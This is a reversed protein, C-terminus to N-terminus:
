SNFRLGKLNTREEDSHILELFGKKHIVGRRNRETRSFRELWYARDGAYLAFSRHDPPFVRVIYADMGFSLSAPYKFQVLESDLRNVVDFNIFTVIDIDRPNADTTTFSGDIWQIFPLDDLLDYMSTMYDLYKNFLTQRQSVPMNWVFITALELITAPINYDPILLGRQNLEIM